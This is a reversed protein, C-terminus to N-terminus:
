TYRESINSIVHIDNFVFDNKFSENCPVNYIDQVKLLNLNRKMM